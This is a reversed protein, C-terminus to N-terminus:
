RVGPRGGAVYGTVRLRIRRRARDDIDRRAQRAAERDRRRKRDRMWWSSLLVTFSISLAVLAVALGAIIANVAPYV